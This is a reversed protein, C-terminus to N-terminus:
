LLAAKSANVELFLLSLRKYLSKHIYTHMFKDTCIRVYLVNAADANTLVSESSIISASTQFLKGTNQSLAIVDFIM